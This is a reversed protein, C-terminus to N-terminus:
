GAGSLIRDLVEVVPRLAPPLTADNGRVTHGQYKIVYEFMDGGGRASDRPLKGFDIGRVSRRLRNLVGAEITLISSSGNRTLTATGDNKIVLRDDTGQIGGSRRYEILPASVQSAPGACGLGILLLLPLAPRM